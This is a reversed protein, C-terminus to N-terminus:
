NWELIGEHVYRRFRIPVTKEVYFIIPDKPPSLELSPDAKELRWRNIYRVFSTDERPDKSFDKYATLFYGIRDDATRPRYGAAPALESISYHVGLRGSGGGGGGFPGGGDGGGRVLDFELEVNKQFAKAKAVKTLSPDIGRGLQGAFLSSRTALLDSLDILCSGGPGESLIPVSTIVRDRYTRKVVEALTGQAKYRIEPEVLVLKRDLREWLVMRDDWQWGAYYGGAISVALLFPRGLLNGPVEGLVRHKKMDVYLTLFGRRAEYGKTVEQLPPFEPQPPPQPSGGPAQGFLGGVTTGFCGVVVLIRLLTSHSTM